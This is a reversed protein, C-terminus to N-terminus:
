AIEGAGSATGELLIFGSLQAEVWIEARAMRTVKKNRGREEGLRM